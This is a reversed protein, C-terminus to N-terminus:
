VRSTEWITSFVGSNIVYSILTAHEMDICVIIVNDQENDSFGVKVYRFM